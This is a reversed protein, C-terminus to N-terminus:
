PEPCTGSTVMGLLPHCKMVNFLFLRILPSRGHPAWGPKVCPRSAETEVDKVYLVYFLENLNECYGREWKESSTPM